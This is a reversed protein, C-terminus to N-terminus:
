RSSNSIKVIKGEHEWFQLDFLESAHCKGSEEFDDTQRVDPIGASAALFSLETARCGILSAGKVTASPAEITISSMRWDFEEEFKIEAQMSSYFWTESTSAEGASRQELPDPSGAAALAEPRTTGLVFPPIGYHPTADPMHTNIEVYFHGV